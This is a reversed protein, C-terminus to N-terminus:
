KRLEKLLIIVLWNPMNAAKCKNVHNIETDMEFVMTIYTIAM